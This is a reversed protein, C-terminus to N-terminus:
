KPIYTDTFEFDVDDVLINNTNEKVAKNYNDISEIFMDPIFTDTVKKFSGDGSFGDINIHPFHDDNYVVDAVVSVLGEDLNKEDLIEENQRKMNDDAIFVKGLGVCIDGLRIINNALEKYIDDLNNKILRVDEDKFISTNDDLNDCLQKLGELTEKFENDM